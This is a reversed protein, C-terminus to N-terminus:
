GGKYQLWGDAYRCWKKVGTQIGYKFCPLCQGNRAGNADYWSLWLIIWCENIPHWEILGSTQKKSIIVGKYDKLEDKAKSNEVIAVLTDTEAWNEMAM